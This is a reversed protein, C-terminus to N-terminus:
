INVVLNLQKKIEDVGVINIENTWIHGWNTQIGLPSADFSSDNLSENIVGGIPAGNNATVWLHIYKNSLESLEMGFRFNKEIFWDHLDDPFVSVLLVNDGVNFKM